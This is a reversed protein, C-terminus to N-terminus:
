AAFTLRLALRCAACPSTSTSCPWRLRLNTPHRSPTPRTAPSCSSPTKEQWPPPRPMTRPRSPLAVSCCRPLRSRTSSSGVRTSSSISAAPTGSARMWPSWRTTLSTSSYGCPYIEATPISSTPWWRDSRCAGTTSRLASISHALTPPACCSNSAPPMPPSLLRHKWGRSLADAYRRGAPTWASIPAPCWRRWARSALCPLGRACWGSARIAPRSARPM